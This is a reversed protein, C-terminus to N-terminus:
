ACIRGISIAHDRREGDRSGTATMPAISARAAFYPASVRGPKSSRVGIRHGMGIRDQAGGRAPAGGARRLWEALPPDPCRVAVFWTGRARRRRRGAGRGARRARVLAQVGRPAVRRALVRPDMREAPVDPRRASDVVLLEPALRRAAALFRAREDASCTGTSTGPRWASSRATPSRRTSRTARRGRRPLRERPSRWCRRARTSGRSRRRAPPPGLFAPAARWTSRGRRRAAGRLAAILAADGRALRAARAGRVPGHRAVLRRVRAGAPRLLRADASLMARRM